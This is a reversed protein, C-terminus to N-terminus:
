ADLEDQPIGEGPELQKVTASNKSQAGCTTSLCYSNVEGIVQTRVSLSM